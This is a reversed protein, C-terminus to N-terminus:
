RRVTLGLKRFKLSVLGEVARGKEGYGMRCNERKSKERHWQVLQHNRISVDLTRSEQTKIDHNARSADVNREELKPPQNKFRELHHKFGLNFFSTSSFFPSSSSSSSPYSTSASSSNLCRRVSLLCVSPCFRLSPLCAASMCAPLCAPLSATLCAPLCPPLCAPLHAPLCPVLCARMRARPCAPLHCAPLCVPMRLANAVSTKLTLMLSRPGRKGEITSCSWSHLLM